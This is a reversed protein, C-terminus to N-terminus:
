VVTTEGRRRGVQRKKRWKKSQRGEGGQQLGVDIKGWGEGASRAATHALMSVLHHWVVRRM